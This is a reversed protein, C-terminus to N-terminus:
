AEKLTQTSQEPVTAEERPLDPLTAALEHFNIFRIPTEYFMGEGTQPDFNGVEFLTFDAPHRSIANDEQLLDIASRRAMNSNIFYFPLNYSDSASDYIVYMRNIM